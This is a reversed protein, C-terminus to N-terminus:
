KAIVVDKLFSLMHHKNKLRIKEIEKKFDINKVNSVVVNDGNLNVNKLEM